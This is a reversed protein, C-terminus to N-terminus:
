QMRAALCDVLASVVGASHGVKDYLSRSHDLTVQSSRSHCPSHGQPYGASHGVKDYLSYPSKCDMVTVNGKYLKVKVTGAGPSAASATCEPSSSSSHLCVCAVVTSPQCCCHMM